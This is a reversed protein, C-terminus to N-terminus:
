RKKAESLESVKIEAIAAFTGSPFTDLYARFMDPNDSDKVSDWFALESSDTDPRPRTAKAGASLAELRTRALAVFTGEPYKTLYAEFEAANESDKISEWFVLELEVPPKEADEPQGADEPTARLGQMEFQDVDDVDVRFARVPQTINKVVQEGLDVFKLTTKNKLHDRVGRSVCVGGAPALAELRAAINVGDGFIDGDKVMVDGVNIGIRLFMRGTPPLSANAEALARQIKVACDFADIVSAFEALVSDGASGTIRGSHSVILDDTIRRHASLTALATEENREMHRSYGEVDAAFIAVLKRELRPAEM